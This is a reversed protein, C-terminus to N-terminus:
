EIRNWQSAEVLCYPSYIHCPFLILVYVHPTPTRRPVQLSGDPQRTGKRMVLNTAHADNSSTRKEAFALFTNWEKVYLLAPIRFDYEGKLDEFLARDHITQPQSYIFFM